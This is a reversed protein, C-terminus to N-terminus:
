NSAAKDATAVAKGFDVAAPTFTFSDKTERKVLFLELSEDPLKELAELDPVEVTRIYDDALFITEGPKLNQNCRPELARLLRVTAEDDRVVLKSAKHLGVKGYPTKISRAKTFWEPHARALAEMEAEAKTLDGQAKAYTPKYDAILKQLAENALAELSALENAARTGKAMLSVMREFEKDAPVTETVRRTKHETNTM